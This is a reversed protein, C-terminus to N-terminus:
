ALFSGCQRTSQSLSNRLRTGGGTGISGAPSTIGGLRDGIRRRRRHDSGTRCLTGPHQTQLHPHCVTEVTCCVGETSPRLLDLWGSHCHATGRVRRREQTPSSISRECTASLSSKPKGPKPCIKGPVGARIAYIGGAVRSYRYR